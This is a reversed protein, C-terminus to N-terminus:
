KRWKDEAEVGDKERNLGESFDNTMGAFGLHSVKFIHKYFM